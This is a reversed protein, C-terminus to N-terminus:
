DNVDTLLFNDDSRHVLGCSKYAKYVTADLSNILGAILLQMYIDLLHFIIIEVGHINLQLNVSENYNHTCGSRRKWLSVAGVFNM